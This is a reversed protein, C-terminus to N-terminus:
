LADLLLALSQPIFPVGALTVWGAAPSTRLVPRVTLCCEVSAWQASTSALGTDAPDLVPDSGPCAAQLAGKRAVVAGDRM